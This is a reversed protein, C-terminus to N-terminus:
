LGIPVTEDRSGAFASLNPKVLVIAGSARIGKVEFADTSPISGALALSGATTELGETNFNDKVILPVSHLPRTLGRKAVEADLADAQSLESQNMTTIANLAPGCKDRADIRDLHPQVLDRCPLDSRRMATHISAITTEEREFPLQADVPLWTAFMLGLVRGCCGPKMGLKEM